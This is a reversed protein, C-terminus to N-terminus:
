WDMARVIPFIEEDEQLARDLFGWSTLGDDSRPELLYFALRGLPQDVRVVMTGAPLTVEVSEYAGELTRANHGQYERESATSSTIRFREVTLTTDAELETVVVGHQELKTLVIQLDAPIFYASPAMEEETARFTGYEYMMEPTVVDLRNRMMGGSFPNQRQETAGMLIEVQEESRQLEARLALSEGIVSRADAAAVIDAVRDANDGAYDVIAEVFYLSALIREEFTAYSYAESLIGIRNRLGIYNTNFRPRYDYTYWGRETDPGSRWPLNGYYYYHWGREELLTKTVSPLLDSRLFGDIAADTNPNLPPAYTVHYAHQTGNTTHLDIAIHPDYEELMLALSRAEPSDLKMHDRNLDLGQANPRQGMGGIPGNQARRNDIRVRENGDANYIPAIMVVLSDLWDTHGGEALKRLLLLMAEKGCVEGAHINGQVWVRTKGNALVAEPSADDVNGFVVM